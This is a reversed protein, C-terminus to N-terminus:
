RPFRTLAWSARAARARPSARRRGHVALLDRVPHEARRHRVLGVAGLPLRELLRPALEALLVQVRDVELGGRDHAVRHGAEPRRVVDLQWRRKPKRRSSSASWHRRSRSSSRAATRPRSRGATGPARRRRARRPAASPCRRAQEAGGLPVGHERGLPHHGRELAREGPEPDLERACAFTSSSTSCRSFFDGRANQAGISTGPRTTSTIWGIPPGSSQRASKWSAPCVSCKALM